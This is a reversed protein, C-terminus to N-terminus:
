AEIAVFIDYLNFGPPTSAICMHIIVALGKERSHRFPGNLHWSWLVALHHTPRPRLATARAVDAHRLTSFGHPRLAM